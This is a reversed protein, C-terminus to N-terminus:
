RCGSVRPWLHDSVRDDLQFPRRGNTEPESVFVFSLAFGLIQDPETHDPLDQSGNDMLLILGRVIDRDVSGFRQDLARSFATLGRVSIMGHCRALRCTGRMADSATTIIRM